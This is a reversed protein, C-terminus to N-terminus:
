RPAQYSDRIGKLARQVGESFSAGSLWVLRVASYWSIPSAATGWRWDAGRNLLVYTPVGLGGSLHVISTDTTIVADLNMVRAATDVFIGNEDAGRDLPRLRDVTIGLEELEDDINPLLSFLEIDDCQTLGQFDNLSASRLHDNVYSPNGRWAIGIRLRKSQRIDLDVHHNPANRAELYAESESPQGTSLAMGALSLIPIWYRPRLKLLQANTDVYQFSPFSGSLFPILRPSSAIIVSAGREELVKAFRIFQLNDGIGQECVVAVRDGHSVQNLSKLVEGVGEPHAPRNPRDEFKAWADASRARSMRLESLALQFTAASTREFQYAQQAAEHAADFRDCRTSAISLNSWYSALHELQNRVDNLFGLAVEDCGAELLASSFGIGIEPESSTEWALEFISLAEDTDGLEFLFQAYNLYARPRTTDGCARILETYAARARAENRASRYFRAILEWRSPSSEANAWISAEKWAIDDTPDAHRRHWAEVWEDERM